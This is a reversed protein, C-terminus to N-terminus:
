TYVHMSANFLSYNWLSSVAIKAHVGQVASFHRPDFEDVALTSV